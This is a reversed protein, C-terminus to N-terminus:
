IDDPHLNLQLECPVQILLLHMHSKPHNLGFLVERHVIFPAVSHPWPQDNKTINKVIKNM